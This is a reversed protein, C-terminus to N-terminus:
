EELDIRWRGEDGGQVWSGELIDENPIKHLTATGNVAQATLTYHGSEVENGEYLIVVRRRGSEQQYEVVILGDGDGIRVACPQREVDGHAAYTYMRANPYVPM